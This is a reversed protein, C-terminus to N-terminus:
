RGIRATADYLLGGGKEADIRQSIRAIFRTDEDRQAYGTFLYAALPILLLALLSYALYKALGLRLASSIKM